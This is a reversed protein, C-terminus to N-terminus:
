HNRVEAPSVDSKAAETLKEIQRRIYMLQVQIRRMDLIAREGAAEAAILDQHYQPPRQGLQEMETLVKTLKNKEKVEAEARQLDISLLEQQMQLEELSRGELSPNNTMEANDSTGYVQGTYPASYTARATLTSLARLREAVYDRRAEAVRMAAELRSIESQSFSGAVRRNAELGTALESQALDFEASHVKMQMALAAADDVVMSDYAELEFSEEAGPSIEGDTSLLSDVRQKVLESKQSARELIRSRLRELRNAQRDVEELHRQQRLDFEREIRRTLQERLVARTDEVVQARLQGAGTAVLFPVFLVLTAVNRFRMRLCQSRSMAVSLKFPKM